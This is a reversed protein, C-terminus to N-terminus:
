IYTIVYDEHVFYHITFVNQQETRTEYAEFSSWEGFVPEFPRVHLHTKFDINEKNILKFLTEKASWHLLLHIKVKTQFLAKEEEENVFRSRIKEVRPAVHEIDVAVEKEKNLILAAYGKTHSISINFSNDSLYPKGSSTYLIEKEEGLLEKLLVRITLWERKRSETMREIFPLYRDTFALRALLSASDEHLPVIALLNQNKYVVQAISKLERNKQIKDNIADYWLIINDEYTMPLEGTIDWSDDKRRFEM